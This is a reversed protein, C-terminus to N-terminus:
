FLVGTKLPGGFYSWVVPGHHLERTKGGTSGGSGGVEGRWLGVVKMWWGVWCSGVGGVGKGGGRTEYDQSLNTRGREGRERRGRRELPM